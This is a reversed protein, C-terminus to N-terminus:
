GFWIADLGLPLRCARFRMLVIRKGVPLQSLTNCEGAHDAM